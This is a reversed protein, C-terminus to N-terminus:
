FRIFAHIRLYPKLLEDLVIVTMATLFHETKLSIYYIPNKAYKIKNEFSEQLWM